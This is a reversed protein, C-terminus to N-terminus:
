PHVKRAVLAAGAAVLLIALAALGATSSSPGTYALDDTPTYSFAPGEEPCGAVPVDTFTWEVDGWLDYGPAAQATVTRKGGVWGTDTYVVGVMEPITVTDNNPLCVPVATPATPTEKEDVMEIPCITQDDTFTWESQGNLVYGEGAAATITREGDAWGTDAFALGAVDPVNLTDNNPGCIPPDVVTVDVGTIEIPCATAEDAFTWSSQGDLVYGEDATATITREGDIWGADSYTLGEITPITVADNNPGCLPVVTPATSLTKASAATASMGAVLFGIALIAVSKVGQAGINTM